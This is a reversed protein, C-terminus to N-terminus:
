SSLVDGDKYRKIGFVANYKLETDISYFEPVYELPLSEELWMKAQIEDASCKQLSVVQDIYIQISPLANPTSEDHQIM